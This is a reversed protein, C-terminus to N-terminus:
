WCSPQSCSCFKARVSGIGWISKSPLLLFFVTNFTPCLPPVHEARGCTSPQNKRGPQFSSLGRFHQLVFWLEHRVM